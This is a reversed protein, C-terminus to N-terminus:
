EEISKLIQMKRLLEEQAKKYQNITNMAKIDHQPTNKEVSVLFVTNDTIRVYKNM